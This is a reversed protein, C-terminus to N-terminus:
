VQVQARHTVADQIMRVLTALAFPKQLFGAIQDPGFCSEVDLETYGSTLVIPLEPQLQKILHFTDAGSMKPMTMDLLVVDFASRRKQVLTLGEEGDRAAVVCFGARELSLTVVTRVGDDDDVVLVTVENTTPDNGAPTSTALVIHPM